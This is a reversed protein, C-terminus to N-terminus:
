NNSVKSWERRAYCLNATMEITDFPIRIPKWHPFLLFLFLPAYVEWRTRFLKSFNNTKNSKNPQIFSTKLLPFTCDADLNLVDAWSNLIVWMENLKLRPAHWCYILLVNDSQIAHIEQPVIEWHTWVCFKYCCCFYFPIYKKTAFSEVISYVAFFEAKVENMADMEFNIIFDHNCLDM